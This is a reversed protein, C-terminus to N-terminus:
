THRDDSMVSGRVVHMTEDLQDFAHVRLPTALRARVEAVAYYTDHVLQGEGRVRGRQGPVFGVALGGLDVLGWPDGQEFEKVVHADAVFEVGALIGTLPHVYPEIGDDVLRLDPVWDDATTPPLKWLVATSLWIEGVPPVPEGDGIMWSPYLVEFTQMTERTEGLGVEVPEELARTGCLDASATLRCGAANSTRTPSRQSTLRWLVPVSPAHRGQVCQVREVLLQPGETPAVPDPMQCDVPRGQPVLKAGVAIEIQEHLELGAVDGPQQTERPQLQLQLWEEAALDLQTGVRVEAFVEAILDSPLCFVQIDGSSWTRILWWM